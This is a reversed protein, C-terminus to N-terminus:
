RCYTPAPRLLGPHFRRFLHGRSFKTGFASASATLFIPFQSCIARSGPHKSGLIQWIKLARPSYSCLCITFNNHNIILWFNSWSARVNHALSQVWLLVELLFSPFFCRFFSCHNPIQDPKSTQCKANISLRNHLVVRGHVYKRPMFRSPFAWKKRKTVKLSSVTEVYMITM